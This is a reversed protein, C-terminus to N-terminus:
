GGRRAPDSHNWGQRPRSRPSPLRSMSPSSPRVFAMTFQCQEGEVEPDQAREVAPTKSVWWKSRFHFTGHHLVKENQSFTGWGFSCELILESSYESVDSSLYIYQSKRHQPTHTHAHTYTYICTHTYKLADFLFCSSCFSCYFCMQRSVLSSDKLFFIKRTRTWVQGQSVFVSLAGLPPQARSPHALSVWGQRETAPVGARPGVWCQAASSLPDLGLTPHALEPWPLYM